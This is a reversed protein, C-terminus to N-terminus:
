FNLKKKFMSKNGDIPYEDVSDKTVIIAGKQKDHGIHRKVARTTM